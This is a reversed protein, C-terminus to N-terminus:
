VGKGYDVAQPNTIVRDGIELGDVIVLEENGELVKVKKFQFSGDYKYVLVGEGQVSTFISKRPIVIGRYINKIFQVDVHRLNLWEKVFINLKVKLLGSDGNVTKEIIKGDILGKNLKTPKVFILENINYRNVEEIDTKVILYFQSNNVIRFIAQGKKIHDGDVLQRYNRSYSDFNTLTINELNGPFLDDELGDVAYSIIGTQNNYLYQDEIKIVKNGYGVRQGESKILEVKGSIPSFRVEEQRVILGRTFFGDVIESYQANVIVLRNDILYIFSVVFIIAIIILLIFVWRDKYGKPKKFRKQALYYVKDKSMLVM